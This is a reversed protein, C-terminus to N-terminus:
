RGNDIETAVQGWALACCDEGSRADEQAMIAAGHMECSSYLRGADGDERGAVLGADPEGVAFLVEDEIMLHITPPAIELRANDLLFFTERRYRDFLNENL